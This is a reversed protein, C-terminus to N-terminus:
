EKVIVEVEKTMSDEAGNNDVVELTVLYIGPEPPIATIVPGLETHSYEDKEITWRYMVIIGDPDSSVRGDFIVPEGVVPEEPEVTFNAEPPLNEEDQKMTFNVIKTEEARIHVTKVATKYGLKRVSVLYLGPKLELEYYGEEDTNTEFIKDPNMSLLKRAKVHADAIPKEEEDTVVGKITGNKDNVEEAVQIDKSISDSAEDDDLVSLEVNYLGAVPPIIEIIKGEFTDIEQEGHRIVWSYKVIEGDSDESCSANLVLNEGVIPQEPNYEFCAEPPQNEEEIEYNAIIEKDEQMLVELPNEDGEADNSWHDFVHDEHEEQVTIEVETGQEYVAHLKGDTTPMIELPEPDLSFLDLPLEGPVTDLTLVVNELESLTFNIEKIEEPEVAVEKSEEKYGEKCASVMYLGSSVKMKYYGLDDTVAEAVKNLESEVMSKVIIKAESIPNEEEDKVYGEIISEEPDEVPKMSILHVPLAQLFICILFLRPSMFLSFKVQYEVELGDEKIVDEQNIPYLKDFSLGMIKIEKDTEIIYKEKLNSEKVTGTGELQKSFIDPGDLRVKKQQAVAGSAATLLFAAALFVCFLKKYRM